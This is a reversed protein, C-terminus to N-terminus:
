RRRQGQGPGSRERGASRSRGPRDPHRRHGRHFPLPHRRCRGRLQHARQRAPATAAPPRSDTTGIGPDGQDATMEVRGGRDPLVAVTTAVAAVTALGAVALHQLHRVRRLRRARRAVRALAGSTAPGGPADGALRQLHTELWPDDFDQEGSM